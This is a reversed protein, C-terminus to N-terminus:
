NILKKLVAKLLNYAYKYVEMSGDTPFVDGHMLSCRLLYLIEIIGSAIKKENNVFNIEGLKKSSPEVAIVSEFVYPNISRYLEICKRQCEVSLRIFDPHRELSEENYVKQEYEFIVSNSTKKQIETKTLFGSRSVRIKNYRYNTWPTNNKPNNNAIRKFSLMEKRGSREQTTITSNELAIHLNSISNKFDASIGDEGCIFNIIHNKFDNDVEKIISIVERDKKNPFKSNYWSNFAIWSKIFASYYDINIDIQHIWERYNDPM